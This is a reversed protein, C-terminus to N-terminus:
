PAYKKLKQNHIDQLFERKDAIDGYEDHHARCLAMLNEIVDKKKTGGMGRAKIHHIDVARAGCIECPIFDSVDYGFHQMYIRTHAKM